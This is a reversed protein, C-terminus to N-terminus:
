QVSLLANIDCQIHAESEHVRLLLASLGQQADALQSVLNKAPHPEEFNSSISSNQTDTRSM